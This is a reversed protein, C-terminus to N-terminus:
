SIHDEESDDEDEYDEYNNESATFDKWGGNGNELKVLFMVMALKVVMVGMIKSMTIMLIVLLYGAKGPSLKATLGIAQGNTM